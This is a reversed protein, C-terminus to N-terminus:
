RTWGETTKVKYWRPLGAQKDIQVQQWEAVTGDFVIELTDNLMTSCNNFSEGGISRLTRPLYIKELYGANCFSFAHITTVSEPVHITHPHTSGFLYFAPVYDLDQLPDIDCDLLAETFEGILDFHDGWLHAKYLPDWNNDDIEEQYTDIFDIVFKDM